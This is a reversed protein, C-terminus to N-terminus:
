SLFLVLSARAPPAPRAPVSVKDGKDDPEEETLFERKPYPIQCGAFVSTSLFLFVTEPVRLSTELAEKWRTRM